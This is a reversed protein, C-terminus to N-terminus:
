LRGVGVTVYKWQVIRCNCKLIGQGCVDCKGYSIIIDWICQQMNGNLFGGNVDWYGRVVCVVDAM